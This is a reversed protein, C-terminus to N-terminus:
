PSIFLETNKWMVECFAHNEFLFNSFMFLRNIKEVIKGSVNRMKLRVVYSIIM